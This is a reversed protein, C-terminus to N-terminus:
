APAATGCGRPDHAARPGAGTIQLLGAEGMMRHRPAVTEVPHGRRALEGILAEGFDAELKLTARTDEFGPGLLFRPRSLAYAPPQDLDLVRWLLQAVTQAQGNGGQTGALLALHGERRFAAPTLTHLPRRGPALANPSAAEASFAAGRNHWLVGTDGAVVGSGFDFYLSQSLCAAHGHHDAAALWVTDAQPMASPPAKAAHGGITAALTDLWPGDLMSAAMAEPADWTSPDGLRTDREALAQAVCAALLHINAAREPPAPGDTVREFLGMIQLLAAGQSPPPPALLEGDRYRLVLPQEVRARCAALDTVRLPSGAQALGDALRQALEGERFSSAGQRALIELTRALQPQPLRTGAEPVRGGPEFIAAFGPQDHLIERRQGHWYQQSASVPAGERAHAIAPALLAAWEMTGGWRELSHTFAQEWADVSAAATLTSGPGRLPVPGQPIDAASQGIGSIVTTEGDADALLWVADGGLGGMHPYVVALVSGAAVLAEAATGGDALVRCAAETAMPHPTTAAGAAPRNM